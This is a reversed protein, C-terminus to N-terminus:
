SKFALSLNNVFEDDLENFLRKIEFHNSSDIRKIAEAFSEISSDSSFEIYQSFPSEEISKIKSSVVRLNNSLYFVIKSPFASDMYEGTYQPNIGIHCRHLLNQLEVGTLLGHYYCIVRGKNSNILDIEAQLNSVEEKTGGGCIHMTYNRPLFKAVKVSNIAGGRTYDLSGAYIVNILQDNSWNNAILEDSIKYNGYVVALTKDGLKKSLDNSVAIFYDAIRLLQKELKISHKSINWVESYIEEVELVIELNKLYKVYKIVSSYYPSHYILIKENKKTNILLWVFLWILSIFYNLIKIYRFKSSISPCITLKQNTKISSTRQFVIKFLSNSEKIWAPSVFHVDRGARNLSDAIYDMKTKSSQSIYRKESNSNFDYFGIYIIRNQKMKSM